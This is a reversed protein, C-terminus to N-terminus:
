RRLEWAKTLAIRELITPHSDLLVHEIRPPDPRTLSTTALKKMVSRQGAPDRTAGLAIWDAEREWRQVFANQLPGTFVQLVVLVLLAMPVAGPEYM